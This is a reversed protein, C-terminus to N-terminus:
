IRSLTSFDYAKREEETLPEIYPIAIHHIEQGKKNFLRNPDCSVKVSGNPTIDCVSTIVSGDMSHYSVYDGVNFAM